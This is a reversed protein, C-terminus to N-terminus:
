RRAAPKISFSAADSNRSGASAVPTHANASFSASNGAPSLALSMRMISAYMSSAFVIQGVVLLGIVLKGAAGLDLDLAKRYAALLLKRRERLAALSADVSRIERYLTAREGGGELGLRRLSRRITPFRVVTM